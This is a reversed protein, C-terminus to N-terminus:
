CMTLSGCRWTRLALRKLGKNFRDRIASRSNTESSLFEVEKVKNMMGKEIDLGVLVKLRKSQINKFVEEFGSFYFFGVLFYLNETSPILNNVVESLLKDQNTIFTKSM